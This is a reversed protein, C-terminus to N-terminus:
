GGVGGHRSFRADSCLRKGCCGWVWKFPGVARQLREVDPVEDGRAPATLEVYRKRIPPDTQAEPTSETAALIQFSLGSVSTEPVEVTTPGCVCSQCALRVGNDLDERRLLKRETENPDCANAIVRVRCKGCTGQGGCPTEITIGARSAAELLKTDQLAFVTNGQPEFKVPIEAERM